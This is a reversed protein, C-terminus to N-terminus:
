LKGKLARIRDAAPAVDCLTEAGYTDAIKAAEELAENHGKRYFESSDCNAWYHCENSVAEKVKEEAFATIAEAITVWGAGKLTKAVEEATKM